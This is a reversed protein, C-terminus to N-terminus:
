KKTFYYNFAFFGLVAGIFNALMDGLEFLRNPFFAWQILEMGVGYVSVLLVSLLASRKTFSNSLRFGLLVLWSFVGYAAFHGLKDPAILSKPMQVGIKTSFLFIAIAWAIAPLFHKM